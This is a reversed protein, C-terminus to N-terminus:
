RKGQMIAVMLSVFRKDLVTINPDPDEIFNNIITTKGTGDAGFIVVNHTSDVDNM